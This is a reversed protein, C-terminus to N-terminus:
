HIQKQKEYLNTQILIPPEAHLSVCLMNRERESIDRLTINEIDMSMAANSSRPGKKHSLLIGHTNM